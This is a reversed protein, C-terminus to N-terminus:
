PTKARVIGGNPLTPFPSNTNLANNKSRPAQRWRRQQRQGGGLCPDETPSTSRHHKPPPSAGSWAPTTGRRTVQPAAARRERTGWRSDSAWRSSSSRHTGCSRELRGTDADPIHPTKLAASLPNPSLSAFGPWLRKDNQVLHCFSCSVSAKSYILIYKGTLKLM